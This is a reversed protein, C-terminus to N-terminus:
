EDLDDVEVMRIEQNKIDRRYRLCGAGGQPFSEIQELDLPAYLKIRKGETDSPNYGVIISYENPEIEQIEFAAFVRVQLYVGCKILYGSKIEM